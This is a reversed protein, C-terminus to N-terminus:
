WYNKTYTGNIEYQNFLWAHIFLPRLIQIMSYDTLFFLEKCVCSIFPIGRMEGNKYELSCFYIKNLLSQTFDNLLTDIHYNM